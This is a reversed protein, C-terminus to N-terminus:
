LGEAELVLVARLDTQMPWIEPDDRTTASTVIPWM